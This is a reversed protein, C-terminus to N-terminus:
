CVGLWGPLAALAGLAPLLWPLASRGRQVPLQWGGRHEAQQLHTCLLNPHKNELGAETISSSYQCLMGKLALPFQLKKNFRNQNQEKIKAKLVLCKVVNGNMKAYM